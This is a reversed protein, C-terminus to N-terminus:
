ETGVINTLTTRAHSASRGYEALTGDLLVFDPDAERRAKPPGPARRALLHTVTSTYARTTSESIGFGAAIKALTTYERM